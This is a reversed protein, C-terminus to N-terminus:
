AVDECSPLAADPDEVWAEIAAVADHMTDARVLRMDDNPADLAEDCNDPPVLFLEAGTDRAAAVKQQIGGIPGVKGDPDITGTGAVVAGGTLSGPTLTDYIALSFMLGASPGGINPDVDVSVEFPFRYSPLMDIGIFPAGDREGPTVTVDREEGDRVVTLTVDQGEPTSRVANGVEETTSTPSGNVAVIVDRVQLKGDAPADKTVSFVEVAPQVDYGLETLAVAIAADQSSVMEIAGEVENSERTDEPRYIARYPYVADDRSIWAGMLEFLNVKAQPQTVFVTTMRLEGDDRFAKHGSVQIIERGDPDDLVDVTVGPEYTVYPLPRTVAVIWLGLLLPVALLGALNRQTM